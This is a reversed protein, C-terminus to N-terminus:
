KGSDNDTCRRMDLPSDTRMHVRFYGSDPKGNEFNDSSDFENDRKECQPENKSVMFCDLASRRLSQHLKALPFNKDYYALSHYEDKSSDNADENESSEVSSRRESYNECKGSYAESKKPKTLIDNISFPTTSISKTAM